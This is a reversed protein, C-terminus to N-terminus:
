KGTGGSGGQENIGNREKIDAHASKIQEHWQKIDTDAQEVLNFLDGVHSLSFEILKLILATKDM